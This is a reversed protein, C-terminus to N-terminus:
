KGWGNFQAHKVVPLLGEGRPASFKFEWNGVTMLEDYKIGNKTAQQLAGSYDDLLLQTYYKPDIGPVKMQKALEEYIHKTGNGHVWMKQNNVSIEFSKPLVTGDYVPQTAKISDWVKSTGTGGM